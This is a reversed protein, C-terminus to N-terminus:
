NSSLNTCYLHNLTGSLGPAEPSSPPGYSGSSPPSPPNYPGRLPLNPPEFSTAPPGRQPPRRASELVPSPPPQDTRLPPPQPSPLPPQPPSGGGALVGFGSKCSEPCPLCPLLHASQLLGARFSPQHHMPMPTFKDGLHVVFVLGRRSFKQGKLHLIKILM